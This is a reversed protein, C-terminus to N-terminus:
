RFSQILTLDPKTVDTYGRVELGTDQLGTLFVGLVVDTQLDMVLLPSGQLVRFAIEKSDEDGTTQIMSFVAAQLAHWPRGRKMSNNTLDTVTDVAKRRISVNTEQLLCQLLLRELTTLTSPSLHDYLTIRPAKPRQAGATRFLLRRLLVLSFSRM